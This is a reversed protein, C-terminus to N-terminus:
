PCPSALTLRARPGPVASADGYSEAGCCNRGRALYYFGDGIEPTEADTAPANLLRGLCAAGSFDAVGRFDSLRGRVLDFLAPSGPTFSIITPDGPAGALRLESMGYKWVFVDTGGASTLMSSGAGPDLDATGAFTGIAVLHDGHDVLVDSISDSQTGGVSLAQVFQGGSDLTLVFGDFSGASTLNFTG